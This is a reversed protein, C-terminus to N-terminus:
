EPKKSIAEVDNVLPVVPEFRNDDGGVEGQILDGLM